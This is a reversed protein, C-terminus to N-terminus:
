ATPTPALTSVQTPYLTTRIRLTLTLATHTVFCKSDCSMTPYSEKSITLEVHKSLTIDDYLITDFYGSFGHLM